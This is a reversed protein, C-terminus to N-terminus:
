RAAAMKKQLELLSDLHRKAAGLAEEAVAKALPSSSLRSACLEIAAIDRKQHEILKPLLFDFSLYHLSAFALPFQGQAVEGDNELIMEGFRDATQQQDVVIQALTQAAAENGRGMWPAAYSLYMPLSRNHLVSLQNLVDNTSVANMAPQKM